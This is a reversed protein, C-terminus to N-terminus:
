ICCINPNWYFNHIYTFVGNVEDEMRKMIRAANLINTQGNM